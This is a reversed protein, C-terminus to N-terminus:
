IITFHMLTVIVVIQLVIHLFKGNCFGILHAMISFQHAILPPRTYSSLSILHSISPTNQDYLKEKKIPSIVGFFFLGGDASIFGADM